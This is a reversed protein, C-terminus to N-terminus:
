WFESINENCVECDGTHKYHSVQFDRHDGHVHLSLHIFEQPHQNKHSTSDKQFYFFIMHKRKVNRKCLDRVNSLSVENWPAMRGYLCMLLSSIGRPLEALEMYVSYKEGTCTYVSYGEGTCTYVCYVEGTCKYVSYVEGTCTSSSSQRCCRSPPCRTSPSGVRWLFMNGNRANWSVKGSLFPLLNCLINNIHAKLIQYRM